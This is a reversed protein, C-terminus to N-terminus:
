GKVASEGYEVACVKDMDFSVLIGVQKGESVQWIYQKKLGEDGSHTDDGVYTADQLGLKNLMADALERLHPEAENFRARYADKNTIFEDVIKREAESLTVQQAQELSDLGYTALVKGVESDPSWGILDIGRYTSIDVMLMEGDREVYTYVPYQEAKPDLLRQEFDAPRWKVNIWKQTEDSIDTMTITYNAQQPDDGLVEIFKQRAKEVFTGEAETLARPPPEKGKEGTHDLFSAELGVHDAVNEEENAQIGTHDKAKEEESAKIGTHETLKGEENALAWDSVLPLCACAGVMLAGALMMSVWQRIKNM